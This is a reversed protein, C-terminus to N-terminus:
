CLADEQELIFLAYACAAMHPCASCAHVLATQKGTLFPLLSYTGRWTVGMGDSISVDAPGIGLLM